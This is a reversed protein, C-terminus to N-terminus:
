IERVEVEDSRCDNDNSFRVTLLEEETINGSKDLLEPHIAYVFKRQKDTIKRDFLMDSLPEPLKVEELESM